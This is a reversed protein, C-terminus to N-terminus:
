QSQLLHNCCNALLYKRYHFDWEEITELHGYYFFSFHKFNKDNIYSIQLTAHTVYKFLLNFNLEYIM